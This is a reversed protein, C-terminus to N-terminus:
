LKGAKWRFKLVSASSTMGRVLESTVLGEREWQLLDQLEPADKRDVVATRGAQLGALLEDQSIVRPCSV